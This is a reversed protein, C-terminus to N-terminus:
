LQNFIYKLFWKFNRKRNIIKWLKQTQHSHCLYSTNCLEKRITEIDNIEKQTILFM